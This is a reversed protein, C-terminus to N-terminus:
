ECMLNEAMATAYKHRSLYIEGGERRGNVKKTKSISELKLNSYKMRKDIIVLDIFSRICKENSIKHVISTKTMEVGSRVTDQIFLRPGSDLFSCLSM